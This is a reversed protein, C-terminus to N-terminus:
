TNSLVNIEYPHARYKPGCSREDAPHPYVYLATMHVTPFLLEADDSQMLEVDM